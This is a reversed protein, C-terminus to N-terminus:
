YKESEEKEQKMRQYEKHMQSARAAANNGGLGPAAPAPAPTQPAPEKPAPAQPAPGQLELAPIRNLENAAELKQLYAPDHATEQVSKVVEGLEDIDECLEAIHGLTVAYGMRRRDVVRFSLNQLDDWKVLEKNGEFEIRAAQGPEKGLHYAKEFAKAAAHLSNACWGVINGNTMHENQQNATNKLADSSNHKVSLDILEEFVEDVLAKHLEANHDPNTFSNYVRALENADCPAIGTVEAMLYGIARVYPNESTQIAAGLIEECSYGRWAMDQAPRTFSWWEEIGIGSEDVIMSVEQATKESTKLAGLALDTKERLEEIAFETPEKAIAFPFNEPTYDPIPKIASMARRKALAAALDDASELSCLTSAFIDAKLNAKSLNFPSRKPIMPGNQFKNKYKPNHRVTMLDISHWALHAIDHQVTHIDDYEDANINILAMVSDHVFLGMLTKQRSLALGLLSTHDQHSFKKIIIQAAESAPHSIIEHEKLAVAELFQGRGHVVYCLELEPYCDQVIAATSACMARIREIKSKM